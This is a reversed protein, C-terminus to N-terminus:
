YGRLDYTVLLTGDATAAAGEVACQLIASSGSSANLTFVPNVSATLSAASSISNILVGSSTFTRISNSGNAVYINGSSDVAVGQASSIGIANGASLPSTGGVITPQAALGYSTASTFAASGTLTIPTMGAGNLLTITAQGIVDHPNSQLTGSPNYMNFLWIPLAPGGASLTKWTSGNFLLISSSVTSYILSGPPVIPTGAGITIAASALAVPKAFRM